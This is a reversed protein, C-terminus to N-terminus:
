GARIDTDAIEDRGTHISLTQYPLFMGEEKLIAACHWLSTALSDDRLHYTRRGRRRQAEALWRLLLLEDPYVYPAGARQIMIGNRRARDRLKHFHGHVYANDGAATEGRIFRLVKREVINRRSLHIM